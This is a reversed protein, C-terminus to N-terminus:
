VQKSFLDSLLLNYAFTKAISFRAPFYSALAQGEIPNAFLTLPGM